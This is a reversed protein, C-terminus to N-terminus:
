CDAIGDSFVVGFVVAKLANGLCRVAQFWRVCGIWVGYEESGRQRFDWGCVPATRLWFSEVKAVRRPFPHGRSSRRFWPSGPSPQGQHSRRHCTLLHRCRGAVGAAESRLRFFQVSLSPGRHFREIFLSEARNVREGKGVRSRVVMGDRGRVEVTGGKWCWSGRRRGPQGQSLGTATFCLPVAPSASPVVACCSVEPSPRSRVMSPALSAAAQSPFRGLASSAQPHHLPM